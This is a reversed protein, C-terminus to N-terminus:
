IIYKVYVKVQTANDQRRKENEFRHKAHRFWDKCKMEFDKETVYPFTKRVVEVVFM